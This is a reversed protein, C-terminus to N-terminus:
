KHAKRNQSITIMKRRIVAPDDDSLWVVPITPLNCFIAAKTRRHGDILKRSSRVAEVPVLVGDKRISATFSADVPDLLDILAERLRSEAEDEVLTRPDVQEYEQEM